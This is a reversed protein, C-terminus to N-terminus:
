FPWDAVPATEEPQHQAPAPPVTEPPTALAAPERGPTYTISSTREGATPIEDGIRLVTRTYASCRKLSAYLPQAAPPPPIRGSLLDAPDVRMGYFKENVEHRTSIVKGDFSAGAYLGKTLSYTYIPAAIAAQQDGGSAVGFDAEVTRGVPGVAIGVDAGLNLSGTNTGLMEVAKDSMLLFVHDSVQAGILAGFSIGFLGVASPASWGGDPLRAVVLGTGVEGGVWFGGKAVTIVAIGKAQEMLRGPIRVGDVERLNASSGGCTEAMMKHIDGTPNSSRGFDDDDDYMSGGSLGPQFASTALVRPKPLLNELTIAAKRVEHGLTFALPSNFVRSFWAAAPSSSTHSAPGDISNFRMSNSFQARLSSQLPLLKDHCADCVRQPDRAAVARAVRSAEGDWSPFKSSPSATYGRLITADPHVLLRRSSCDQCFIKGCARCHHRRAGPLLKSLIDMNHTPPLFEVTCKMCYSQDDDHSWSVAGPLPVITPTPPQAQTTM